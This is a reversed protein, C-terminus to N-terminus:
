RRAVLGFMMPFEPVGEPALFRGGPGPRMSPLAKWGNSYCFEDFRELRLGAGLVAGIIDGVGWSFSHDPHPNQFPELAVTGNPALAARAEAVYDNVGSTSVLAGGQYPYAPRLDTGILSLYPHYEMLVLRGGPRLLRAAGQVFLGLDSLWGIAGYSSFAVDFSAPAAEALWDYVDARHFEGPLQSAASLGRAVAIAEDSIDVGVVEAGQMALSLTDQGSNCLLHALRLGSLPGLLALEEPYLTSHGGRLQAAQDGKHRNHAQTAANWSLRNAEHLEPRLRM